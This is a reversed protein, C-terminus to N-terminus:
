LEGKFAQDLISPLMADLEATTQAQLVTLAQIKKQATKFHTVFRKQMDISISVPFPIKMVTDQAIKKMTPSTGKANEIIYKRAIQSQLWCWVFQKDAKQEDVPIKMILDPYICPNPIGNYIASHGVLEPTNSRTILLDGSNLWYHANKNVAMSTKKYANSDYYFGTVASLTLVPIGNDSNDCSASWGNRPKDTLIDKLEGISSFNSTLKNLYTKALLGTEASSLKTIKRAEEIKGALREIKAVIRQQEALPPLPVEIQIFKEPRIRNKGSTGRSQADCREWFWHTKTLWYFWKPEIKTLIPEFIPFEGSCYCGELENSVVSVSGNRAWIKNVIIDGAKVLNFTKYKTESGDISEREYAGQGWLRVGIQRYTKGSVPTELREVPQAVMHIPVEPWTKSM